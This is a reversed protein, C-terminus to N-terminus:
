QILIEVAPAALRFVVDLGPFGVEGGVAGGTGLGGGVLEPQKQVGAGIPEQPAQPGQHGSARRPADGLEVRQPEPQDLGSGADDLHFGPDFDMQWGACGILGNPAM